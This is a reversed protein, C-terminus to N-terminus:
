WGARPLARWRPGSLPSAWGQYRGMQDAAPACMATWCGTVFPSRIPTAGARALLASAAGSRCWAASAAHSATTPSSSSTTRGAQPTSSNPWRTTCTSSFRPTAPGFRTTSGTCRCRSIRGDRELEFSAIGRAEAAAKLDSTARNLLGVGFVQMEAAYGAALLRLRGALDPRMRGTRGYREHMYAAHIRRPEVASWNFVIFDTPLGLKAAALFHGAEHIVTGAASRALAKREAEPAAALHQLDLIPLLNPM